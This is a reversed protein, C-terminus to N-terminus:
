SGATSSSPQWGAMSACPKGVACCCGGQPVPYGGSLWHRRVCVDAVPDAAGTRFVYQQCLRHSRRSPLWGRRRIGRKCYHHCGDGTQVPAAYLIGDTGSCRHCLARRHDGTGQGPAEPERFDACLAAHIGLHDAPLHLLVQPRWLFLCRM